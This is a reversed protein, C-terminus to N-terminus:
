KMQGVLVFAAWFYPHSYRGGGEIAARQAAALATAKDDTGSMRRYFASMLGMTSRDNVAWLSAVVSPSGAFLFARTLGVIDDGAPVEAFYGSGLATDCASLVVLRASVKLGLIEHVELRGDDRGGPELEVGSLLPNFKNFYGHTALHLVDYRDASKKFASETARSGLLLLQDTPFLRAVAAAEQQSYRLGTRAPAMAMVSRAAQPGGTGNGLAAAAPLYAIVYDNVLLRAATDRGRPLAAFPVYHLAAHPVIFLHTVGDLWGAAEIPAVLSQHLSAAPARWDGTRERAILDRVLEVKASVDDSRIAVTRAQIGSARVVFISVGDGAVVYEVLAEDEALRRQVDSSSAATLSRAAAYAPDSAALTDVYNQYAREAEILEANFLATAERRQEREQAPRAYEDEIARELQRVRERLTIEAQRRAEDQIPPLGRNMWDIYSRARLKEAYTFAEQTRGLKLLLQVLTVYVQHKDELYSARFREERLQARVGEIVHVAQEYAAVAEENRGLGELAQGHGYAIRWGLEPDGMTRAIEAAAADDRLTAEFQRRARAVEGRAFLAEAELPRAGLAQADKVALAAHDAAEDLRGQDRSVFALAVRIGAMNARDDAQTARTLADRYLAGAEELRKRQRELDGLAMLNVTVGRAHDISRSLEIARRFSREASAADGLREYLLGQDNLAEALERPLKGREYARLAQDYADIAAAYQGTRVFAGAKGKLWDAEEKKLGAERALQLARDFHEIAKPVDGLGLYCLALNGLDQSASPKLKLRESIALAQQYYRLAERYQGLLLYVGGINGLTDSEGREFNTGRYLELVRQYQELSRRYDGLEDYVLSLNNLASGEVQKDGIDRAIGIARTLDEIAAPYQGAEWYVLGINSLTKAEEVRDGLQRKMALARNLLDLAKQHEGFRKYCNGILGLVIAEGRRDGAAQYLSLTREFVPLAARPGEESYIQKARALVEDPKEQAIAVATLSGALCFAALLRVRM